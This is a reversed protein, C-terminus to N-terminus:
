AARTRRSSAPPASGGASGDPRNSATAGSPVSARPTAAATSVLLAGAERRVRLWAVGWADIEEPTRAEAQRIALVVAERAIERARRASEHDLVFIVKERRLAWRDLLEALQMPDVHPANSAM